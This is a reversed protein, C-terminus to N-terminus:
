KNGYLSEALKMAEYANVVGATKSLKKFKTKKKDSGPILVKQKSYLVASQLIIDKLQVATLNPYYSLVLAAVGAVVPSADSTGSSVNYKNKPSTSRINVGPAFIDVSNRGYNSFSAPLKLGLKSSSAGVDIWNNVFQGDAYEPTPFHTVKDNNDANNGAAHIILVGHREAYRVASDVFVKHPSYSKGFSGNIIQAGNDVAYRIGLAVDKDREDGGPVVRVVMLRVSDAIGQIGIGNDRTAGVIGAVGTGHSSTEATVDNNGYNRDNIDSVNDGVIHRSKFRTNLKQSLLKQHYELAEEIPKPDGEFYEYMQKAWKLKDSTTNISEVDEKTFNAGLHKELIENSNKIAGLYSEYNKVADKSDKRQTKYDKEIILWENYEKLDEKAIEKKTKKNYKAKYKAYLRTLEWTDGNVNKGDANGIFNWGHVDDIYGNKDDDIGNYPIEKANVWLRDKLDEHATDVGSDIIAVIVVKATKNNKKAYEYARDLSIGVVTDLAIDGHSWQSYDASDVKTSDQAFSNLSILFFASLLLKSLTKM